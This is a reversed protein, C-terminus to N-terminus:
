RTTQGVWAADPVDSAYEGIAVRHLHPSGDARAMTGKLQVLSRRVDRIADDLRGTGLVVEVVSERLQPAFKLLTQDLQVFPVEFLMRHRDDHIRLRWSRTATERHRMLETVVTVAHSRAATEDPDVVVGARTILHFHYTPM